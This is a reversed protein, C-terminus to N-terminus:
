DMLVRIHQKQAEAMLHDFDAMTGFQPDIAEYDSIDYGFDVQPSPYFPTLWIANIGLDKLYGLHRTVGNLDGIGDANSDGFSRPYIEYIVAHRWWETDSPAAHLLAPLLLAVPLLLSGLRRAPNRM